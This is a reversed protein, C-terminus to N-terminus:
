DNWYGFSTGNFSSPTSFRFVIKICIYINIYLLSLLFIITGASVQFAMAIALLSITVLQGAESEVGETASVIVAAVLFPLEAILLWRFQRLVPKTKTKRM